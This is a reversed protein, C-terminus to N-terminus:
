STDSERTSRSADSRSCSPAARGGPGGPGAPGWWLGRVVGGRGDHLVLLRGVIEGLGLHNGLLVHPDVLHSSQCRRSWSSSLTQPQVRLLVLNPLLVRRVEVVRDEGMSQCPGRQSALKQRIHLRAHQSDTAQWSHSRATVSQKRPSRAPWGVCRIGLVAHYQARVGGSCSLVVQHDGLHDEWLGSGDSGPGILAPIHQPIVVFALATLRARKPRGRPGSLEASQGDKWGSSIPVYSASVLACMLIICRM